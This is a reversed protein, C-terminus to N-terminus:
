TENDEGIFHYITALALWILAFLVLILIVIFLYSSQYLIMVIEAFLIFISIVTTVVSIIYASHLLANRWTM